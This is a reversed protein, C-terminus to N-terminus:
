GAIVVEAGVTEHRIEAPCRKRLERSSRGKMTNALRSRPVAPPFDVLVHVHDSEGNREVRRAGRNACAGAMIEACAGLMLQTFVQTPVQVMPVGPKWGSGPGPARGLM